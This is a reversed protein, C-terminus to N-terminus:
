KKQNDRINSLEENLDAFNPTKLGVRAARRSFVPKKKHSDKESSDEKESEAESERRSETNEM